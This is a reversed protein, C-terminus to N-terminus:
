FRPDVLDCHSAIEEGFICSCVSEIGEVVLVPVRLGQRLDHRELYIKKM